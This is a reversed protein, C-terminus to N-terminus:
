YTSLMSAYQWIALMVSAGGLLWFVIEEAIPVMRVRRIAENRGVVREM